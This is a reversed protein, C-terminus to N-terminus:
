CLSTALKGLSEVCESLNGMLIGTSVSAIAMIGNQLIETRQAWIEFKTMQIRKLAERIYELKVDLSPDKAKKKVINLAKELAHTRM